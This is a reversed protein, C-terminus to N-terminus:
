GEDRLEELPEPRSFDKGFQIKPPGVIENSNSGPILPFCGKPGSKAVILVKNHREAEAVGWSSELVKDVVNKPFVQVVKQHDIQVINKNKWSGNLEMPFMDLYNESDKSVM